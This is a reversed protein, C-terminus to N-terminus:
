NIKVLGGSLTLMGQGSVTTNASEVKAEAQGSIQVSTGEIKVSQGKLALEGSSEVTIKGSEVKITDGGNVVEISQGDEIKVSQGSKTKLEVKSDTQITMANNASDIELSNKGTKDVISIKEQNETDDFTVIHGSRTKIVRKDVKGTRGVAQNSPLPPKDTEGWLGGLVYPRNPDDYEFAVLVEDNVEPLFLFGREAGAMPSVIRVWDSEIEQSNAENLWNGLKVKVRGLNDPDSANTVVAPMVGYPGRAKPTLLEGLTNARQGSIEFATEYHGDAYRHLARSVRYRGSFRTGVGNLRLWVGAKVNPLGICVGEAQIFARGLDNCVSKAILNAEDQTLVPTGVVVENSTGGFARSSAAGGNRGDSTPAEAPSTEQGLIREKKKPDWGRVIVKDAQESTSMRAHFETLSQGWDVTVETQVPPTRVFYFDAGDVYCYHGVRRAREFLFEMDTQNDQFVYEHQVSTSDVHATLSYDGAVQQALGSDTVQAFTRTKRDRYMRHSKDYGRIVTVPNNVDEFEPEVATIEGKLLTGSVSQGNPGTTQIGIEIEKGLEFSASDIWHFQQDLLRLTFMSPMLLSDDVEFAMLADYIDQSADQGDIKLRPVALLDVPM